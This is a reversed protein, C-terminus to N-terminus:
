RQAILADSCCCTVSTAGRAGEPLTGAAIVEAGLWDLWSKKTLEWCHKVFVTPKHITITATVEFCTVGAHQLMLRCPACTKGHM